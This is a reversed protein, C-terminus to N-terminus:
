SQLDEQMTQEAAEKDMSSHYKQDDERWINM